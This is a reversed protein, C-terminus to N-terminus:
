TPPTACVSDQFLLSAPLRRPTSSGASTATRPLCRSIARRGACAKGSLPATAAPPLVALAALGVGALLCLALLAALLLGRKKPAAAAPKGPELPLAVRTAAKSSFAQTITSLRAAARAPPPTTAGELPFSCPWQSSPSPTLQGASLAVRPTLAGRPTLRPTSAGSGAQGGSAAEASTRAALTADRPSRAQRGLWRKATAVAASLPVSHLLPEGNRRLVGPCISLRSQM